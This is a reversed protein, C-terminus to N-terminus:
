LLGKTCGCDPVVGPMIPKWNAPPNFSNGCKQCTLSTCDCMDLLQTLYDKKTLLEQNTPVILMTLSQKNIFNSYIYYLGQELDAFKIRDTAYKIQAQTNCGFNDNCLNIKILKRKCDKINHDAIFYYYYYIDPNITDQFGIKYLDDTVTFQTLSGAGIIPLILDTPNYPDFTLGNDNLKFLQFPIDIAEHNVLVVQNVPILKIEVNPIAM